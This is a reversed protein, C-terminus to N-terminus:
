AETESPLDDERKPETPHLGGGLWEGTALWAEYYVLWEFLWPVITLAIPKHPVWEQRGPYYLCPRNSEYTHPIREGPVRERLPPDEIWVKPTSREQYELRFRYVATIPLPWVVGGCTLNPGAVVGKFAPWAIRMYALQDRASLPSRGAFRAAM